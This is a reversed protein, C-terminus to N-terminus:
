AGRDMPKGPLSVPTPEWKRRWPIKRGFSQVWDGSDGANDPLNKVLSGGLFGM